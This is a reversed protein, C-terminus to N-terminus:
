IIDGMRIMIGCMLQVSLEFYPDCETSLAKPSILESASTKIEYAPAYSKVEPESLPSIGLIAFAGKSGDKTLPMRFEGFSWQRLTTKITGVLDHKGRKDWDYVTVRFPSDL